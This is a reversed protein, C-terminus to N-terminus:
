GTAILAKEIVTGVDLLSHFPLPSGPNIGHTANKKRCPRCGWDMCAETSGKRGTRRDPKDLIRFKVEIMKEGRQAELAETKTGMNPSRAM